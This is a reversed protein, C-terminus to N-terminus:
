YYAGGLIIGKNDFYIYLRQALIEKCIKVNATTYEIFAYKIEAHIAINIASKYVHFLM